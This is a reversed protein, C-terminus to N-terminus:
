CEEVATNTLDGVRWYGNDEVADITWRISTSREKPLISEKTQQDVVDMASNDTCVEVEVVKESDRQTVPSVSLVGWDVDGVQIVNMKRFDAIEKVYVAQTQGTTIDALPQLPREPDKSLENSIRFFENVVNEAALQDEDLSPSPSPTPSPTESPSPSPAPSTTMPTTAVVTPAPTPEPDTTCATLAGLGLAMAAVIATTTITRM